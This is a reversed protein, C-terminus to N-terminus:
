PRARRVLGLGVSLDHDSTGLDMAVETVGARALDALKEHGAEGEPLAFFPLAEDPVLAAAGDVDGALVLDRIHTRPIDFPASAVNEELLDNRFLYALKRRVTQRSEDTDCLLYTFATVSTGPRLPRTCGAIYEASLGASLQCALDHEVAVEAQGPTLVSTYLECGTTPYDIACSTLHHLGEATSVPEGDLLRKLVDIYASLNENGREVKIGAKGLDAPNGIGISATVRGGSWELLTSLAMATTLPHNIFASVNQIGVRISDTAQLVMAAIVFPDRRRLHQTIWVSTAGNREAECAIAVIRDPSENGEFRVALDADTRSM